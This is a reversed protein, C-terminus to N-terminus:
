KRRSFYLKSLWEAWDAHNRTVGGRIDADYEWPFNYYNEMISADNRSRLNMLASPIFVNKIYARIGFDREQLIHGYEHNLDNKRKSYLDNDLDHNLYIVGNLAWSTLTDSSHRIVLVGKYASFYTAGYVKDVDSNNIDFNELDKAFKDASVEGWSKIILSILMKSLLESAFNGMPDSM